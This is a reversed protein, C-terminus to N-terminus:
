VIPQEELQVVTTTDDMMNTTVHSTPPSSTGVPIEEIQDVNM